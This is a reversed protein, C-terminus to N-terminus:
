EDQPPVDFASSAAAPPQTRQAQADNKPPDTEQNQNASIVEALAMEMSAGMRGVLFEKGLISIAVGVAIGGIAMILGDRIGFVFGFMAFIGGIAQIVKIPTEFREPIPAIAIIAEDQSIFSQLEPKLKSWYEIAIKRIELPTTELIEQSILSKHDM